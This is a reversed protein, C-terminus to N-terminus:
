LRYVLSMVKEDSRNEFAGRGAPLLRLLLLLHELVHKLVLFAEKLLCQGERQGVTWTM